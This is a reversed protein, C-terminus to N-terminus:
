VVAISPEPIYGLIEINRNLYPELLAFADPTLSEQCADCLATFTERTFEPTLNYAMLISRLYYLASEDLMAVENDRDGATRSELILAASNRM